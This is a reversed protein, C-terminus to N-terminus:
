QNRILKMLAGSDTPVGPAAGGILGSRVKTVEPSEHFIQRDKEDLIVIGSDPPKPIEPMGVTRVNM